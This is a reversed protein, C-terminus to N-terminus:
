DEEKPESLCEQAKKIRYLLDNKANVIKVVDSILSFGVIDEYRSEPYLEMKKLLLQIGNVLYNKGKSKESFIADYLQGNEDSCGILALAFAFQRKKSDDEYFIRSYSRETLDQSNYTPNEDSLFRRAHLQGVVLKTFKEARERVLQELKSQSPTM